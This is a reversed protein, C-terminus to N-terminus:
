LNEEINVSQKYHILESRTYLEQKVNMTAFLAMKNIMDLSANIFVRSVPSHTM